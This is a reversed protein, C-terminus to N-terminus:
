RGPEPVISVSVNSMRPMGTIRDHDTDVRTLRSTNSGAERFRADGALVDGYAHTMSVCGRRLSPDPLVVALLSGTDSTIRVADGGAVGLAGLDDPHVFAPNYPTARM